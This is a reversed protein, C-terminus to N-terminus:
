LPVSQMCLSRKTRNRKNLSPQDRASQTAVVIARVTKSLHLSRTLLVGQNVCRLYLRSSVEKGRWMVGINEKIRQFIYMAAEVFDGYGELTYVEMADILRHCCQPSLMGMIALLLLEEGNDKEM